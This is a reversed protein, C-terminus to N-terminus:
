SNFWKKFKKWIGKKPDRGEEKGFRQCFEDAEMNSMTRNQRFNEILAQRENDKIRHAHKLLSIAQAISIKMPKSDYVFTEEESNNTEGETEIKLGTKIGDLINWEVIQGCFNLQQKIVNNRKDLWFFVDVEKSSHFWRSVLSESDAEIVDAAIEQLTEGIKDLFILDPTVGEDKVSETM